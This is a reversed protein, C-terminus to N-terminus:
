PKRSSNKECRRELENLFQKCEDSTVIEYIENFKSHIFQMQKRYFWTKYANGCLYGILVGVISYAVNQM